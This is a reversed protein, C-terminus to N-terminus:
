IATEGDLAWEAEIGISNLSVVTSECLQRDDDVVLMTINPLLMAEEREEAKEFDLTVCFETGEGQISKVQIDGKMADVIYKTIAMGLGTGETKQVRKSDERTFSDFIHERFEESM